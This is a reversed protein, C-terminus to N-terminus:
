SVAAKSDFYNRGLLSLKLGEMARRLILNFIQLTRQDTTGVVGVFRIKIQITDENNDLKTTIEVEEKPLKKVCFLMTGDFLNGGLQERQRRILSKKLRLNDMEPSFDVRYQYIEWHDPRTCRFYNATLKLHDGVKGVKSVVHDPKTRKINKAVALDIYETVDGLNLRGMPRVLNSADGGGGGGGGRGGGGDRGRGGGSHGANVLIFDCM